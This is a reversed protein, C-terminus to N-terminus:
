FIGKKYETVKKFNDKRWSEFVAWAESNEHPQNRFPRFSPTCFLTGQLPSFRWFWKKNNKDEGSASYEAHFCEPCHDTEEPNCDSSPCTPKLTTKIKIKGEDKKLTKNIGNMKLETPTKINEPM